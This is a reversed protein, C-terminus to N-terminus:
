DKTMFENWVANREKVEVKFGLITTLAAVHPKGAADFDGRENREVLLKFAEVISEKRKIPDTAEPPLGKNEVEEPLVEGDVPVAGVAMAEAVAINPVDLPEGKRFGLM